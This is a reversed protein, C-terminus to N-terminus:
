FKSAELKDGSYKLGLIVECHQGPRQYGAARM